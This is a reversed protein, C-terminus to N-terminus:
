HRKIKGSFTKTQSHCNPCLLRLNTITNDNPIGNIHDLQLSIPKSNWIDKLGCIDCKNKLIKEQLLRKKLHSRAFNSNKVLIQHLPTKESNFNRGLNSYRTEPIHSYNIKDYNLREKLTKTNGGKHALNFKKLICTFTECSKVISELEEKSIKWIASRKRKM